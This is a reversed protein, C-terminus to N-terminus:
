RVFIDFKDSELSYLMDCLWKRDVHMWYKIDPFFSQGGKITEIFKLLESIQLGEIM